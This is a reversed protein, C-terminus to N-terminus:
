LFIILSNILDHAVGQESKEGGPAGGGAIAVSLRSGCGEVVVGVSSSGGWASPFGAVTAGKAEVLMAGAGGRVAPSGWGAHPAGNRRALLKAGMGAFSTLRIWFRFYTSRLSSSGSM